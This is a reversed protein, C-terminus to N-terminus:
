GAGGGSEEYSRKLALEFFDNSDFSSESVGGNNVARAAGKEKEARFAENARKADEVTKIGGLSWGNLIKDAYDFSFEGISDVTVEYAYGIVEAGYGLESIWHNIKINEKKTFARAGIGLKKRLEGAIGDYLEMAKIHEELADMTDIGDNVLTYAAKEIYHMKCNPKKRAYYACMTLIYDPELGLHEKMGVIVAVEAPNFVWGLIRQCQDIVGALAGGDRKLTESLTDSDYKPLEERMLRMPKEGAAGVSQAEGARQGESPEASVRAERQAQRGKPSTSIVSAGRWFAIAATVSAADLGVQEAILEAYEAESAAERSPEAAIAMLVATETQTAAGSIIREAAAAPLVTVANGFKLNFKM